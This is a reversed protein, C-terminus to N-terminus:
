ADLFTLTYDDADIGDYGNGEEVGTYPPIFFLIIISM